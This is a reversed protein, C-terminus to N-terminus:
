HNPDACSIMDKRNSKTGAQQTVEVALRVSTHVALLVRRMSENRFQLVVDYFGVKVVIGKSDPPALANIVMQSTVAPGTTRAPYATAIIWM